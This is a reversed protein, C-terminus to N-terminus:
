PRRDALPNLFLKRRTTTVAGCMLCTHHTVPEMWGDAPSLLLARCQSCELRAIATKGALTRQVALARLHAEDIHRGDIRVPSYTEDVIQEGFHDWAHVHIGVEEPRQMTSVIASNSPWLMVTAFESTDLDLPRLAQQRRPPASLGLQEYAGALPNSISPGTGDHFNRGCRNCLHKRHGHTAFKSQDLHTHGCRPCVLAKVSRGLLESISYAVAAAGEIVLTRDGTHLHVIDFSRDIDKPGGSSTRHHVHVKGPEVHAEGITLAPPTVGWVALEGNTADLDLRLEEPIPDFWAGDCRELATGDPKSAEMGHTTCWWNPKGNRKLVEYAISCPGAGMLSERM